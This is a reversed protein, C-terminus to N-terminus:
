VVQKVKGDRRVLQKSHKRLFWDLLRVKEQRWLEALKYREVDVPDNRDAALSVPKALKERVNKACELVEEDPPQEVAELMNIIVRRDSLELIISDNPNDIEIFGYDGLLRDNTTSSGGYNFTAWGDKRSDRGTRWLISDHVIDYQFISSPSNTKHNALDLWPVLAVEYNRNSLIYGLALVPAMLPLLAEVSIHAAGSTMTEADQGLLLPGIALGVSSLIGTAAAACAARIRGQQGFRGELARSSVLDYARGALQEDTTTGAMLMDSIFRRRRDRLSIFKQKTPEHQLWDLQADSWTGALAHLTQPLSNLYVSYESAEGLALHKLVSCALSDLDDAVIACRTPIRCNPKSTTSIDWQLGRLGTDDVAVTTALTAGKGELWESLSTTSALAFVILPLM